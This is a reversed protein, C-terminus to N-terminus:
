SHVLEVGYFGRFRLCHLCVGRVPVPQRRVLGQCLWHQSSLAVKGGMRTGMGAGSLETNRKGPSSSFTHEHLLM